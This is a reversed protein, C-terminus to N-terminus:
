GSCGIFKPNCKMYNKLEDNENDCSGQFFRCAVCESISTEHNDILPCEITLPDIRSQKLDKFIVKLLNM